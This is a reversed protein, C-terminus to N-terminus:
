GPLASKTGRVKAAGNLPPDPREGSLRPRMGHMDQRHHEVCNMVLSQLRTQFAHTDFNEAHARISLPDVPMHELREIADIVAEVTPENFFVGTKGDIVTELAGGAGYAIVPRGSAMAELPAIGFDEEGPFFFAKCNAFLTEVQGDPVRGMFQVTPGAISKLRELEPGSGVVKLPIDLKSCAQIALDVRKYVLLRSVVLYYDATPNQEVFFRRTEVPPYLIESDRGYFKKVRRAINYSNSLFYDVRNAANQDWARLFHVLFPLARRVRIGYNGQSIYEHYRWAFRSPTHCYCIHCTEPDTIVGKAFSTTHSLVVDYGRMDFHEFALPFLPLMFKHTKAQRAFRFRQLFSTRIDMQQFSPFTAAPDYVSTYIPADPWLDHMAEVVREAGGAQALYDHVIALKM